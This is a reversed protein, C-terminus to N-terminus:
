SMKTCTCPLGPSLPKMSLMVDKNWQQLFSYFKEYSERSTFESQISSTPNEQLNLIVKTLRGNEERQERWQINTYLDVIM